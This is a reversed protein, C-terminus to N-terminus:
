EKFSKLRKWEFNGNASIKYQLIVFGGIHGDEWYAVVVNNKLLYIKNESYFNAIGGFIGKYPILSSNEMLNNHISTLLDKDVYQTEYTSLEYLWQKMAKSENCFYFSTLM